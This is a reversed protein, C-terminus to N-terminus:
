RVTARSRRASVARAVFQEIRAISFPKEIRANRVRGLFREAEPTFVGGTMFVIRDLVDPRNLELACYVDAGSLEPMVLDCFIVDFQESGLLLKLGDRASEVSTVDHRAELMARLTSAVGPDDDIVLVKARGSPAESPGASSRVSRPVPAREPVHDPAQPLVVRFTTGSPTGEVDLRADLSAFLAQCVALSGSTFPDFLRTRMESDLPPGDDSITVAVGGGPDTGVTLRMERAISPEELRFRAVYLLLGLFAQELDSESAFVRPTPEYRTTLQGRYRLENGLVALVSEIVTRPDVREPHSTRTRSLSRMQRVIKAVRDAGDHAEGLRVRAEAYYDHDVGMERMRRTVHELNLLTYSLPNNIAHAMGAALTGLVALRDSQLIQSELRKRQTIERGFWLIAPTQEFDFDIASLEIVRETGDLSTMNCEVHSVPQREIDAIQQRLHAACEPDVLSFVDIAHVASPTLGFLDQFAPNAYILRAEDTIFIADPISEIVSRFREESRRLSELAVRDSTVDAFFAVAGPNGDISTPGMGLALFARSGDARIVSTELSDQVTGSAHFEEAADELRTREDAALIAMPDVATLDEYGLITQAARNAYVTRLEPDAVNESIGIGVADAAHLITGALWETDTDEPRATV